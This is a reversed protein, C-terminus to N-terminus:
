SKADPKKAVLSGARDPNPVLKNIAKCDPCVVTWVNNHLKGTSTTLPKNCSHCKLDDM